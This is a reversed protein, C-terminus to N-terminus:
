TLYVALSGIQKTNHKGLVGWSLIREMQPWWLCPRCLYQRQEGALSQRPGLSQPLHPPVRLLVQSPLCFGEGPAMLVTCKINYTEFNLSVCHNGFMCFCLACFLLGTSPLPAPSPTQCLVGKNFYPLKWINWFLSPLQSIPHLAM